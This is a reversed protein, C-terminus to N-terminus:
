SSHEMQGVIGKVASAMRPTDSKASMAGSSKPRKLRAKAERKRTAAPSVQISERGMSPGSPSIRHIGARKMKLKMATLTQTTSCTLTAATSM